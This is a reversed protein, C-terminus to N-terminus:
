DDDDPYDGEGGVESVIDWCGSFRLERRVTEARPRPVVPRAADVLCAGGGGRQLLTPEVRDM